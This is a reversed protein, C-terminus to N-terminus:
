DDDRRLCGSASASPCVRASASSDARQSRVGGPMRKVRRTRKGAGHVDLRCSQGRVDSHGARVGTRGGKHRGCALCAPM